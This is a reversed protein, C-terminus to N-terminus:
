NVKIASLRGSLGLTFTFTPVDAYPLARSVVISGDTWRYVIAQYKQKRNLKSYLSMLDPRDADWSHFGAGATGSSYMIHLALVFCYGLVESEGHGPASCSDPATAM